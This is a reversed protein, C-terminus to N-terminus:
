IERAFTFGWVSLAGAGKLMRACEDLTAGSTVVDDILIVRRGKVVPDNCLFAASVNKRRETVNATKTQSITYRSRILPDCLDLGTRSSLERALLYSQNYGRERVRQTHLPVAVLVEGPLPNAKLYAAMLEAM